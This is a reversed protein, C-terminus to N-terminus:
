CFYYGAGSLRCQHTTAGVAEAMDKRAMGRANNQAEEDKDKGYMVKSVVTGQDAFLKRLAARAEANDSIREAIIDRAGALADNADKVRLEENEHDPNVLKAAESALDAGATLMNAEIFDALPELGKEKAITARTRRKPRFPAFIDELVNITEAKEIKARLIDTMLKREELSKVIAARRDDLAVLQEMREKINLIQVEDLMGTAEKRYRSIFPVTGGDALLKATAGVQIAKIGLEKAVREVHAVNINLEESASM